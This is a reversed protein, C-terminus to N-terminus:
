LEGEKLNARTFAWAVAAALFGIPLLWTFVRVAWDYASATQESVDGDAVAENMDATIHNTPISLTIWIMSCFIIFLLIAAYGYADATNDIIIKM